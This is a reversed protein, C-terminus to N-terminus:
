FENKVFKIVYEGDTNVYGRNGVNDFYRSLGSVHPYSFLVNSQKEDLTRPDVILWGGADARGPKVYLLGEEESYYVPDSVDQWHVPDGSNSMTANSNEFRTWALKNFNTDIPSYYIMEGNNCSEARYGLVAMGNFFPSIYYGPDEMGEKPWRKAPGFIQRGTKDIIYADLDRTLVRAMGSDFDSPMVTYKAPIVEKGSKDVYGWRPEAGSGKDTPFHCVAALGDHFDRVALYKPKIVVNGKGDHFGWLYARQNDDYIVYPTLGERSSRMMQRVAVSPSVSKSTFWLNPFIFNGKTDVYKLTWTDGERLTKAKTEFVVVAVGDEFNSAMDTNFEKIVNGKKDLIMAHSRQPFENTNVKRIEMVVGNNFRPGYRLDGDMGSELVKNGKMDIYFDGDEYSSIHALGDYFNGFDYVDGNITVYATQPTERPGYHWGNKLAIGPHITGVHMDRMDVPTYLDQEEETFGSSSTGSGSNSSNSRSTQEATKKTKNQPKAGANNLTQELKEKAKKKARDFLSQADATSPIAVAAAMILAIPLIRM